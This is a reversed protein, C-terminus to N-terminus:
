RSAIAIRNYRMGADTEFIRFIGPFIRSEEADVRNPQSGAGISFGVDMWPM